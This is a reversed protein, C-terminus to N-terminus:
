PRVIGVAFHPLWCTELWRVKARSWRCQEPLAHKSMM